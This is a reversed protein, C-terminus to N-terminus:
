SLNLWKSVIGAHSPSVGVLGGLWGHRQLLYTSHMDGDRLFFRQSTTQM